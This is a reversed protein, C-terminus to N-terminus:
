AEMLVLKPAPLERLRGLLDIVGQESNPVSWSEKSPLVAVDLTAKSVDIGVFLEATVSAGEQQPLLKTGAPEAKRIRARPGRLQELESPFAGRRGVSRAP